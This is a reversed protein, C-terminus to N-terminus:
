ATWHDSELLWEWAPVIHITGSSLKRDEKQDMTVIWSEDQGFREMACALASIERKATKEDELSITVQILRLADGVLVDGLVFDVEHQASGDKLLSRTLADKRLFGCSRRLDVFVATELRQALDRAAAPSFAAELGPDAAYIKQPRKPNASLSRSLEPLSFVLYSEEYYALLASLTERSVALGMSRFQNQTKNVSLERASSALCRRVFAQATRVSSFGEREVIDRAVTQSAYGQLVQYANEPTLGAVAPFGGTLLYRDLLHRIRAKESSSFAKRGTDVAGGGTMECYESFSFPFLERTISRGRFETPMESSLMRSSSGTVYITAKRTDVIRRIFAGWGPVEQIEDFFLYCGELSQPWLAEYTTIVDDLVETEFPMLREDDFNFYLIARRDIGSALLTGMEQYLRFTKGCRRVGAIMNVLNGREPKQPEGLSLKRCFLEPIPDSMGGAVKEAVTEHTMANM